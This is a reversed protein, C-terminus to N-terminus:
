RKHSLSSGQWPHEPSMGEVYCAWGHKAVGHLKTNSRLYKRNQVETYDMLGDCDM